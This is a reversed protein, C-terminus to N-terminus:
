IGLSPAGHCHLTFPSHLLSSKTSITKHNSPQKRTELGCRIATIIPCVHVRLWVPIRICVCVYIDVTSLSQHTCDDSWIQVKYGKWHCLTISETHGITERSCGHCSILWQGVLWWRVQRCQYKSETRWSSSAATAPNCQTSSNAKSDTILCSFRQKELSYLLIVM